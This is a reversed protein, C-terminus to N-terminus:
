GAGSSDDSRRRALGLIGTDVNGAEVETAVCGTSARVVAEYVGSGATNGLHLVESAVVLQVDETQGEAPLVHDLVREASGKVCSEEGRVVLQNLATKGCARGANEVQVVVRAPVAGDDALATGGVGLEGIDPRLKSGLVLRLLVNHEAQHVLGM